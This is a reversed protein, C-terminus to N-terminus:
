GQMHHGPTSSAGRDIGRLLSKPIIITMNDSNCQVDVGPAHCTRNDLSLSLEPDPCVCKYSGATNACKHSCGGNSVACEDIDQCKRGDSSLKLGPDPCECKYSGATNVCKHSCGGKSVACENIDQCKRGDSSLSLGPDPCECKYSGETNVCKHSCGGNSVACENIDTCSVSKASDSWQGRSGCQKYSPGQLQYGQPCSFSCRTNIKTYSTVCNNPTTKVLRGVTLASCHGPLSVQFSDAKSSIGGHCWIGVYNNSKADAESGSITIKRVLKDNIYIKVNTGDIVSKLKYWAGTSFSYNIKPNGEGGSSSIYMYRNSWLFYGWAKTTHSKTTVSGTKYKFMHGCSHGGLVQIRSTIVYKDTNLPTPGCDRQAM